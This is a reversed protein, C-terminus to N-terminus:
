CDSHGGGVLIAELVLIRVLDAAQEARDATDELFQAIDRLLLIVPLEAKSTIIKLDLRRHIRDVDRECNEVEKTLNLARSSNMGLALLSERLKFLTEFTAESMKTLDERVAEPVEWKMEAM